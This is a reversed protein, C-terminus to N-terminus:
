KRIQILLDRRFPNAGDNNVRGNLWTTLEPVFTDLLLGVMFTTLQETGPAGLDADIFNGSQARILTQAALGNASDLLSTALGVSNVIIAKRRVSLDQAM